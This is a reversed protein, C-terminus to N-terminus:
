SSPSTALKRGARRRSAACDAFRRSRDLSSAISFAVVRGDGADRLDPVVEVLQPAVAALCGVQFREVRQNVGALVIQLLDLIGVV